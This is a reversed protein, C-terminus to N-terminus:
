PQDQRGGVCRINARDVLSLTNPHAHNYQALTSGQNLMRTVSEFVAAAFQPPWTIFRMAKIIGTDADILLVHVAHHQGAATPPAGIQERPHNARVQAM